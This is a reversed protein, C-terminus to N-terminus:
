ARRPRHLKLRVSSGSACASREPRWRRVARSSGEYLKTYHISYSTIVFVSKVANANLNALKEIASFQTSAVALLTEVNAKQAAQLQEPTVYM